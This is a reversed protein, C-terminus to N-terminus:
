FCVENYTVQQKEWLFFLYIYVDILFLLIFNKFIFIFLDAFINFFFFWFFAEERCIQSLKVM